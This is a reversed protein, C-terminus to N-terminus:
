QDSELSECTERVGHCRSQAAEEACREARGTLQRVRSLSHGGSGTQVSTKCRAQLKTWINRAKAARRESSAVQGLNRSHWNRFDRLTQLDASEVGLQRMCGQASSWLEATTLITLLAQHVGIRSEEDISQVVSVLADAASVTLPPSRQLEQLPLAQHMVRLRAANQPAWDDRTHEGISISPEAVVTPAAESDTEAPGLSARRKRKRPAYLPALGFWRQCALISDLKQQGPAYFYADGQASKSSARAKWQVEWGEAGVVPRRVEEKKQKVQRYAAILSALMIEKDAASSGGLAGEGPPPLRGPKALAAPAVAPAVTLAAKSTEKQWRLNDDGEEAGLDHRRQDGDDYRILHLAPSHARPDADQFDKITGTFWEPPQEGRWLVSVRAGIVERGYRAPASSFADSPPRNNGASLQGSWGVFGTSTSSELTLGEPAASASLFARPDDLDEKQVAAAPLVLVDNACDDDDTECAVAVVHEASGDM